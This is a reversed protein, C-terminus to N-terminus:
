KQFLSPDISGSFSRSTSAQQREGEQTMQAQAKTEQLIAMNSDRKARKKEKEVLRAEKAV